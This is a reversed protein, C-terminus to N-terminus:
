AKRSAWEGHGLEVAVGRGFPRRQGASVRGASPLRWEGGSKAAAGASSRCPTTSLSGHDRREASSVRHNGERPTLIRAARIGRSLRPPDGHGRPSRRRPFATFGRLDISVATIDRRHRASRITSAAGRRHTRRAALRLLFGAQAERTLRTWAGGGARACAISWPTRAQETRERYLAHAGDLYIPPHAAANGPAMLPMAEGCLRTGRAGVGKEHPEDHDSLAGTVVIVPLFNPARFPQFSSWSRSAIPRPADAPDLLIITSPRRAGISLGVVSTRTPEHEPVCETGRAQGSCTREQPCFSTEAEVDDASSSAPMGGFRRPSADREHPAGDGVRAHADNRGRSLAQDFSSAFGAESCRAGIAAGNANATLAIVPIPATRSGRRLQANRKM